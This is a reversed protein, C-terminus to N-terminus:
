VNQILCNLRITQLKSTNFSSITPRHIAKFLTQLVPFSHFLSALVLGALISDYMGKLEDSVKM